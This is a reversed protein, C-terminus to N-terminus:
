SGYRDVGWMRILMSRTLLQPHGCTSGGFSCAKEGNRLGSLVGQPGNSRGFKLSSHGGPSHHEKRKDREGVSLEEKDGCM